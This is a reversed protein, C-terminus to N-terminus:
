ATIKLDNYTFVQQFGLGHLHDIVMGPSSGSVFMAFDGGWAGLSKVTGPFTHYRYAIPEKKLITSLIFEHKDVLRILEDPSDAQCIEMSLKSVEMLDIESFNQGKFFAKVEKQTDQKHGLYVFYTNDRLAKGEKVPTIVPQGKNLQYFLLEKRGACAIDYGSGESVKRFLEFAEIEAWEAVLYCLTSSSGLGWALPYNATVQVSWGASGKLFMPNLKRAAVLLRKLTTAVKQNTASLVNFADPDFRATFWSGEPSISNWNLIRGPESHIIMQQGFRVPLALAKAGELVLYEGSLLLKGNAHFEIASKM